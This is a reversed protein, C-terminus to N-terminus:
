QAPDKKGAKTFVEARFQRCLQDLSEVSLEHLPFSPLSTVGEQKPRAPMDVLVFNPTNFPKLKLPMTVNTM